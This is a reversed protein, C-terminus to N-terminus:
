PTVAKPSAIGRYSCVVNRLDLPVANLVGELDCKLTHPSETLADDALKVQFYDTKADQASVATPELNYIMRFLKGAASHFMLGTLVTVNNFAKGGVSESSRLLMLGVLRCEFADASVAPVPACEVKDQPSQGLNLRSETLTVGRENRGDYEMKLLHFLRSALSGTEGSFTLTQPTITVPPRRNRAREKFRDIRDRREYRRDRFRSLAGADASHFSPILLAGLVFFHTIHM